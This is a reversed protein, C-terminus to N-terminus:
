ILFAQEPTERQITSAPTFLRHAGHMHYKGITAIAVGITMTLSAKYM